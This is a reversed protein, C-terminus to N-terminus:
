KGQRANGQNSGRAAGRGLYRAHHPDANRDLLHLVDDCAPAYLLLDEAFSDVVLLVLLNASDIVEDNRRVLSDGVGNDTGASNDAHASVVDSDWDVLKLLLITLEHEWSCGLVRDLGQRLELVRLRPSNDSGVRTKSPGPM